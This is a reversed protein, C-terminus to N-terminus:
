LGLHAKIKKYFQYTSPVCAMHVIAHHIDIWHWSEAVLARPIGNTIRAAFCYMLFQRELEVEWTDILAGIETDVDLEERLERKAAAPPNADFIEVRGGPIEWMNPRTQEPRRRTMLVHGADNVILGMAVETIM